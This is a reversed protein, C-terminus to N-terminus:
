MFITLGKASLTSYPLVMIEEVQLPRQVLLQSTSFLEAYICSETMDPLDRDGTSVRRGMVEEKLEMVRFM